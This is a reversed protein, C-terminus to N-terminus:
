KKLMYLAALGAAVMMWMPMGGASLGQASTGSGAIQVNWDGPGSGAMFGAGMGAIGSSAGNSLNFNLPPLPFPM